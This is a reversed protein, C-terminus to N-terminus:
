ANVIQIFYFINFLLTVVPFIIQAGKNWVVLDRRSVKETKESKQKMQIANAWRIRAQIISEKNGSEEKNTLNQRM